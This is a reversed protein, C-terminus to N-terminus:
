SRTINEKFRESVYNELGQGKGLTLALVVHKLNKNYCDMMELYWCKM